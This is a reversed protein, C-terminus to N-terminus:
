KGRMDPPWIYKHMQLQMRVRLRDELIWEALSRPELRGFVTGMMVTCADALGTRTLLERAWLYDPRDAVVIKFEFSGSEDKGSQLALDINEQHNKESVGSSPPKIDIIKHVCPDVGAVSLFGGTELLVIERRRNCLKEMLTYVDEQLLPEGGTIEVLPAGIADVRGIIGEITMETGPAEAYATDCHLCGHGCGALRVFACPWGAFSSEGQISHFIESVSLKM